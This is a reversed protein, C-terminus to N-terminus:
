TEFSMQRNRRFQKIKSMFNDMVNNDKILSHPKFCSIETKENRFFLFGFDLSGRYATPSLIRGQRKRSEQQQRDKVEPQMVETEAETKM